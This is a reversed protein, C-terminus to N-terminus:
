ALNVSTFKRKSKTSQIFFQSVNPKRWEDSDGYVKCGDQVKQVHKISQVVNNLDQVLSM